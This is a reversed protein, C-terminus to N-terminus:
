ANIAPEPTAFEIKLYEGEFKAKSISKGMLVGPLIMNRQYQGAQIVLEDGRIFLDLNSKEVGPLKWKLSYGQEDKDIIIPKDRCFIKAPNMSDYVAEGFKSLMDLGVIESDLLAAKFIKRTPFSQEVESQYKRQIKKWSDFYSDKISDPFIKNIYIGDVLYDYLNMYTFARKAENIVMKELNVVFRITTIDHNCLIKKIGALAVVLNEIDDFVGRDPLKVDYMKDVLPKAFKAVNKQVPFIKQLYWQGAEPFSLLRITADTPACDLILLDFTNQEYYKKLLLLSFLEQMGPFISIEDAVTSQVGRSQLSSSIFKKINGWHKELEARTDIEQAFLNKDIELPISGIQTNFSDSLSHAPDTSMVLTKIDKRAALVATSAAVTTKGVGGKGTIVLIRM